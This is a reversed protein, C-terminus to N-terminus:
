IGNNVRELRELAKEQLEQLNTVAISHLEQAQNMKQESEAQMAEIRASFEADQLAKVREFRAILLADDPTIDKFDTGYLQNIREIETKTFEDM